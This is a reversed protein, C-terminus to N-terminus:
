ACTVGDVGGIRLMEALEVAMVEWQQYAEPFGSLQVDQAVDTLRRTEWGPVRALGEYFKGAAYVPNQVQSETGWGQSPRQQFLGLSDLDGYDLNRLRSEQQATALAIVVAREPLRRERGVRAITDANGIQEGTVEVGSGPLRCVGPPAVARDTDWAVGVLVAAAILLAPWWQQMTHGLGRRAPSRRKLRKSRAVARRRAAQSGPARRRKVSQTATIRRRAGSAHVATRPESMVRVTPASGSPAPTGATVGTLRVPIAV